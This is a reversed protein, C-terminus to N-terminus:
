VPNKPSPLHANLAAYLEDDISCRMTGRSGLGAIPKIVVPYGVQSVFRRADDASTVLAQRAVPLGAERLVTKMRNKDRFNGAVEASMGPIGLEDRAVAVPVQLQELFSIFRDVRGWSKQFFRGAAVLQQADNSNAIRYHGDVKPRIEVPIREPGDHMVVGVRVDELAVLARLCSLMNASLFPCVFLVHKVRPRGSLPCSDPAAREKGDILM